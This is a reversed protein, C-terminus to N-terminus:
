ARMILWSGGVAVPCCSCGPVGRCTLAPGATLSVCKRCGRAIGRRGSPESIKSRQPPCIYFSVTPLCAATTSYTSAIAATTTPASM